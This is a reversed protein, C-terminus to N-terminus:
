SSPDHFLPFHQNNVIHTCITSTPFFPSWTSKEKVDAEKHQQQTSQFLLTGLGMLVFLFINETKLASFSSKLTKFYRSLEEKKKAQVPVFFILDDDQIMEMSSSKRDNTSLPFLHKTTPLIKIAGVHFKLM